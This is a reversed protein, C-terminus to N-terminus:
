HDRGLRLGRQGGEDVDRPHQHNVQLKPHKTQITNNEIEVEDEGESDYIRNAIDEEEDDNDSTSGLITREILTRTSKRRASRDINRRLRPTEDTGTIGKAKIPTSFLKNGHRISKPTSRNHAEIPSLTLHNSSENAELQFEPLAADDHVSRRESDEASDESDINVDKGVTSSSQSQKITSTIDPSVLDKSQNQIEASLRNSSRTRKVAHGEDGNRRAKADQEKRKM